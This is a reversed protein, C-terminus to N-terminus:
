PQRRQRRDGPSPQGDPPSRVAPRPRAALRRKVDAYAAAILADLAARDLDVGPKVKVHRMRRGSGELLGHPDDLDAGHFFGVNAHRSFVGVYAFAAEGVCATPCGDHMLERVDRGCARMRQFWRSAIARLAPAQGSLWLDISRDRELAAPFRMLDSV